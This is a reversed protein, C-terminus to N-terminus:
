KLVGKKIGSNKVTPKKNIEGREGHSQHNEQV